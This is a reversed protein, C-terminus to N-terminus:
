MNVTALPAGSGASDPAVIATPPLPHEAVITRPWTFQFTSGADPESALTITGGVLEVTKKVISLGVGTSDIDDRSQLTQFVNFIRDHYRPDIGPGNDAVSFRYIDGEEAASVTVVASDIDHHYKFANGILNSLVQDLRTKLTDFVPLDRSVLRSGPQLALNEGILEVMAVTDVLTIEEAEKGIRSYSLIGSVMAQARDAQAGIRQVNHELDTPLNRKDACEALDEQIFGVLDTIGRLPTKLDHSAVCAFEELEDNSIELRRNLQNVTELHNRRHHQSLLLALVITGLVFIGGLSLGNILSADRRIQRVLSRVAKSLDALLTDIERIAFNDNFRVASDIAEPDNGESSLQQVRDLRSRYADIMARTSKLTSEVGLTAANAELADVLEAAAQAESVANTYNRTEDPRLVLNKFHHILGGYGIRRTLQLSLTQTDSMLAHLEATRQEVDRTSWLQAAALLAGFVALLALWRYRKLHTMVM